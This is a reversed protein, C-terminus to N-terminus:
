DRTTLRIIQTEQPKLLLNKCQVGRRTRLETAQAPAKLTKLQLLQSDATHNVVYVLRGETFPVSRSEVGWVPNGTQNLVRVAREIQAQDFLRDLLAAYSRPELPTALVYVSGKGRDHRIVAPFGDQFRALVSAETGVQLQHVAGNGILDLGELGGAIGNIKSRTAITELGQRFTQDYQQVLEGLRSETAAKPERIVVRINDMFDLPELYENASLSEPSIVLRGGGKVYDLLRAAVETPVYKTAPIFILKYRAAWNDRIQAETIFTIRADLYRCGEYAHNLESLYPTSSSRMWEPPIQIVSTKSYFIAVEAQQSSFAAIEQNLRRVDLATRMLEEVESLSITWSHAYSSSILHPYEAPPQAPWHWLQLVSKGHLLHPWLDKVEISLEPDCLPKKQRSLALQLDMGLTSGGGEHLIVDDVREIILEEDIGSTGNSGVLMSYSGGAAIPTHPDVQKVLGKVWALHQTFREQNFVAWDFWQARNTDPLPMSSKVPPPQIEGFSAFNTKWHRNLVEMTGHRNELWERFMQQSRKCYCIYSLEYALINYLLNPNRMWKPAEARVYQEIAARIHPSELCIVVEEKKGGMSHRDRILHGCWGDWGVRKADPSQQFAQYVPSEDITWRSGGGATYSEVHQYPTAFFRTLKLSPSHLSLVYLPRGQSNVFFGDRTGLGKLLPLDPVAPEPVQTDDNDPLRDRGTIRNQLALRARVCSQAVERFLEAKRQDNNFWALLPRIGLGLEAIVVPIEEYITELGQTRASELDDRLAELEAVARRRLEQVSQSEPILERPGIQGIDVFRNRITVVTDEPKPAGSLEHQPDGRILRFNDVYVVLQADSHENSLVVRRVKDMAMARTDSSTRMGQLLVRIHNTGSNLFVKQTALFADSWVNAHEDDALEDYIRLSLMVPVKEPSFIEMALWDYGSWDKALKESSLGKQMGRPLTVRLAQQGQSAHERSFGFTGTWHFTSAASEFDALVKIQAIADSDAKVSPM